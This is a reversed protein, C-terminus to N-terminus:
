DVSGGGSLFNAVQAHVERFKNEGIIFHAGNGIVMYHKTDSGIGAFLRSADADTSVPDASGRVLLTPVTIDRCDYLPHGSYIEALDAMAGNPVRFAGATAWPYESDDQICSEAMAEFVGHPRWQSKDPVPIEDDWRKKLGETPVQRYAGNIARGEARSMQSKFWPPCSSPESYLPAYLVLRQVPIAPTEAVLKGCIISGWSGGLLDVRDAGTRQQIFAIAALVDEVVDGARAFAPNKDAPENFCAPRSSRGYGRIDLAFVHIGHQALLNMWSWDPLPNDWLTSSLTAGHVLLLPIPSKPRERGPIRERLYLSGGVNTRSAIRHQKAEIPMTTEM